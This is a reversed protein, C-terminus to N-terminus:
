KFLALKEVFCEGNAEQQKVEETLGSADMSAVLTQEQLFQNLTTNAM